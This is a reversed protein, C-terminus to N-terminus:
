LKGYQYVFRIWRWINIPNEMDVILAKRKLSKFSPLQASKGQLKKLRNIATLGLVYTAAMSISFTLKRQSSYPLAAINKKIGNVQKLFLKEMAYADTCRVALTQINQQLDKYIDFLDNSLQIMTGLQYWCEEEEKTPDIDLYHRCMLVANGGKEFTIHKIEENSITEDFQKMSAAQAEFEKRLVKIYEDKKKMGQMLFFHSQLSVKEDFRKPEYDKSQFTIAEIEKLTLIKDDFFNDFISSCIFYNISREQEIKSTYRGHLLTFPDNVITFYVSYSKTVKHFTADDFKGGFDKEIARLYRSAHRKAKERVLVFRMGFRIIIFCFKLFYVM